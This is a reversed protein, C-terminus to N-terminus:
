ASDRYDVGLMGLERRSELGDDQPDTLRIRSLKVIGNSSEIYRVGAQQFAQRVWGAGYRDGVVERARFRTLITAIESVVGTLDVANSGRRSWGRMVDLVIKAKHEVGEAHGIALTFADPGGGSPDVAAHYRM